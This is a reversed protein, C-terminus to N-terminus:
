GRALLERPGCAGCVYANCMIRRHFKKTPLLRFRPSSSPLAGAPPILSAMGLTIYVHVSGLCAKRARSHRRSVSFNIISANERRLNLPCEERRLEVSEVICEMETDERASYIPVYHVSSRILSGMPLGQLAIDLYLVKGRCHRAFILSSRAAAGWGQGPSFFSVRASSISVM